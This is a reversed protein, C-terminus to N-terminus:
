DDRDAWISYNIYSEAIDGQALELPDWVQHEVYWSVFDPDAHSEAADHASWSEGYLGAGALSVVDAVRTRAPGRPIAPYTSIPAEGARRMLRVFLWVLGVMGILIGVWSVVGITLIFLFVLIITDM